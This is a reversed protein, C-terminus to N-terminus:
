GNASAVMDLRGVGKTHYKFATIIEFISTYDISSNRKGINVGGTINKCETVIFVNLKKPFTAAIKLQSALDRLINLPWTLSGKPCTPNIIDCHAIYRM